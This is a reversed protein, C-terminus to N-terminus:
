GLAEPNIVDIPNGEAFAVVRDFAGGIYQELSEKSVYGLHPSCLCNDLQLLPHNRGLVPEDEYVDVAAKGPRGAKLAEVLAGEEILAARSTNVFLATPKMQDIDARTVIGRTEPRMALHISVVDSTEFFAERSQAMDFGDAKAREASGERGWVIVKMGFADGVRAVLSGIGGYAYIGLTKGWLRTGLTIQWGGNQLSNVEQPINRAAALILAWTLEATVNKNGGGAAVVVGRRTCADLDIHNIGRASQAILKLNPLKELLEASIPTRERILVAAEADKFREAIADVGKVTDNHITVDHGDMKTFCDLHRICDQYDDSIVVKM